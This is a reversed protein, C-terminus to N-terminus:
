TTALVLTGELYERTCGRPAQAPEFSCHGGREWDLLRAFCAGSDLRPICTWDISGQRSVLAATHSDGILAYAAIPLYDDVASVAAWQGAGGQQGLEASPPRSNSPSGPGAATPARRPRKPRFWSVTSTTGIWTASSLRWTTRAATRRPASTASMPTSTSTSRLCRCWTTSPGSIRATWSTTSCRAM